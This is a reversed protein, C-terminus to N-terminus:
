ARGRSRAAADRDESGVDTIASVTAEFGSRLNSHWWTRAKNLASRYSGAPRSCRYGHRTAASAPLPGGRYDAVAHFVHFSGRPLSLAVTIMGVMDEPSIWAGPDSDAVSPTVSGLRLCTVGLGHKEHYVRCLAEGHLKSAAYHSDPRPADQETFRDNRSYMGMIHMSSCFVFHSVENRVASALMNAVAITNDAVLSAVGAEKAAGALHVVADVDSLVRDCCVPDCLDAHEAGSAARDAFRLEYGRAILLPIIMRAVAGSSGTVLIKQVSVPQRIAQDGGRFWEFWRPSM